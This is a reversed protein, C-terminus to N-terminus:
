LTPIQSDWLRFGWMSAKPAFEWVSQFSLMSGSASALLRNSVAIHVEPVNKEFSTTRRETTWFERSRCPVLVRQFPPTLRLTYPFSSAGGSNTNEEQAPLLCWSTSCAFIKSSAPFCVTQSVPLMSSKRGIMGRSLPSPETENVISSSESRLSVSHSGYRRYKGTCKARVESRSSLIVDFARSAPRILGVRAGQALSVRWIERDVMPCPFAAFRAAFGQGRTKCCIRM